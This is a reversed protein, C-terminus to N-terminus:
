IHILSLSRGIQLSYEQPRKLPALNTSTGNIVMAGNPHDPQVARIQIGKKTKEILCHQDLVQDDDVRLHCEPGSGIIFPSNVAQAFTGGICDIVAIDTKHAFAM